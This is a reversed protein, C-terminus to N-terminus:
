RVDFMTWRVNDGVAEYWWKRLALQGQSMDVSAWLPAALAPDGTVTYAEGLLQRTPRQWPAAAYAAELHRRAAAYDGLSLEIQGLRRNATVNGPDLALAARYRAVAPGLDVPPPAGPLQRRLADQIPYDPWRYVTLEARAQDLAALNAHWMAGMPRWGIIAAVLILAAAIAIYRLGASQAVGVILGM